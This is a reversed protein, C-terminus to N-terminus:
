ETGDDPRTKSREIRQEEESLPRAEDRAEQEAKENIREAGPTPRDQESRPDENDRVKPKPTPTDERPNM